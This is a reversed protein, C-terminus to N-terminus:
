LSHHVTFLHSANKTKMCPNLTARELHGAQM